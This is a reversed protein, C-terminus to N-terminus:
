RLIGENIMIQIAAAFIWALTFYIWTTWPIDGYCENWIEIGQQIPDKM